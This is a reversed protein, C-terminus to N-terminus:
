ASARHAAAAPWLRLQRFFHVGIRVLDCACYIACQFANRRSSWAFWFRERVNM